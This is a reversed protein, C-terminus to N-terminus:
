VIARARDLMESFKGGNPHTKVFEMGKETLVQCMELHDGLNKELYVIVLATAALEEDEWSKAKELAERGVIRGLADTLAFSGSTSMQLVLTEVHPDIPLPKFREIETTMSSAPPPAYPVQPSFIHSRQHKSGSRRTRRAIEVSSYSELSSLTSFTDNSHQSAWDDYDESGDSYEADSESPVGSDVSDPTSWGGPLGNGRGQRPQSGATPSRFLSTPDTLYQWITSALSAMTTSIDTHKQQRGYHPRVEGYDVAVFSTHSSALQYYEGLRVIERRQTTESQKGKANGSELDRIIRHAALTHIFPPESLRRSFKASEVDVRISVDKGNAKGHIVVQKPATETPVIAFFVSRSSPYMDPISSEPPSQQVLPHSSSDRGPSIDVTWDVSVDTIVSTRGARLLSTCKLLISEQSVALLYQGGGATALRECVDSSVTHGIGLIFLRLPANLSTSTNHLIVDHARQAEVDGVEGDTLIFAATPMSTRRSGLFARIAASLETGGDACLGNVYTTANQLNQDGYARSQPWLQAYSSAFDFVNFVTNQSPLCRLLLSVCQQAMGMRGLSMSGSRDILFLYEQEPIPPLDFHPILTLQLAITGPLRPDKEVFCRSRELESARIVLEFDRDLFTISRLKATVRRRSPRGYHTTYEELLLSQDHSPSTVSLIQGSMQIEVTIKLKVRGLNGTADELQEPLPGYRQGLALPLLLQVKDSLYDYNMLNMVFVTKTSITARAPISGLSIRFVLEGTLLAIRRNPHSFSQSDGSVQEQLAAAKEQGVAAEFEKVAEVRDKARAYILHNDATMMSFACIAARSPVPFVYRVTPTPKNSENRYTQTVTVRSSVDMVVVNIISKLLPVHSIAKDGGGFVVGCFSPEGNKGAPPRNM